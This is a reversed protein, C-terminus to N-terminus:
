KEILNRELLGEAIILLGDRASIKKELPANEEQSMLEHVFKRRKVDLVGLLSGCVKENGLLFALALTGPPTENALYWLALNDFYSLDEFKTLIGETAM